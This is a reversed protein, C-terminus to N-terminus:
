LRIIVGGGWTAGDLHPSTIPFDLYLEMKERIFSDLTCMLLSPPDSLPAFSKRGGALIQGIIGQCDLWLSTEIHISNKASGHFTYGSSHLVDYQIYVYPM